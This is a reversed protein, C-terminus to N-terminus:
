ALCVAIHCKADRAYFGGRFKIYFSALSFSKKMPTMMKEKILLDETLWRATHTFAFYQIM